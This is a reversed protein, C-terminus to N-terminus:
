LTQTVKILFYLNHTEEKTTGHLFVTPKKPRYLSTNISQLALVNARLGIHQGEPLYPREPSLLAEGLSARSMPMVALVLPGPRQNQSDFIRRPHVHKPHDSTPKSEPPHVRELNWLIYRHCIMRSPRPLAMGLTLEAKCGPSARVHRRGM